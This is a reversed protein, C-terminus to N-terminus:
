NHSSVAEALKKGMNKFVYVFRAMEVNYAGIKMRRDLIDDFDTLKDDLFDELCFSRIKKDTKDEEERESRKKKVKEDERNSERLNRKKSDSM